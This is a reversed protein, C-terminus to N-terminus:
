SAGHSDDELTWTLLEIAVEAGSLVEDLGSVYNADMELSRQVELLRARIIGFLQGRIKPDLQQWETLLSALRTDRPMKVHKM